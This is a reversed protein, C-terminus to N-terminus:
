LREGGPAAEGVLLKLNEGVAIVNLLVVTLFMPELLWRGLDAVPLVAVGGVVALVYNAVGAGHGRASRRPVRDGPWAIAWRLLYAGFSAALALPPLWNAAAWYRVAWGTHPDSWVQALAFGSLALALFGADCLNDILRGAITERGRRRAVIGDLYDAACAALVAPLVLWSRRTDALTVLVFAGLVIRSSSLLHQPEIKM